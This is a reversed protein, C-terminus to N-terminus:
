APAAAVPEEDVFRENLSKWFADVRPRDAIESVAQTLAMSSIEARSTLWDFTEADPTKLMATLYRSRMGELGAKDGALRYAIAARMVSQRTEPGLNAAEPSLALYASAAAPWDRDRWHAEAVLARADPRDVGELLEITNGYRGLELYAAAELVRRELRVNDPLGALRTSALVRLAAEPQRDMLYIAALDAAVISQGAGRLRNEVQHALLEQAQPLLDFAVLRNALRRIMRDGDPGIPTLDKFEYFLGVAQIPDMTDAKGDLFLARFNDSLMARLDRAGPLKDHLLAAGQAALMSDRFRGQALYIESLAKIVEIELADGRWRFRLSELRETAEKPDILGAAFQVEVLALEARVAVPEYRSKTLATLATVADDTQGKAAAVRALVLRAYLKATDDGSQAARQAQRSATDLQGAQLDALASANLFRAQWHPTYATLVDRGEVFATRALGWDGRAAAIYGQWLKASPDASLQPRQLDAEADGLRGIMASAAVRMGLFQANTELRPNESLALQLAGLAEPFLENAMYFRALSLAAEAAEPKGPEIRSAETELARRRELYPIKTDGAWGAFDVFAPSATIKVASSSAGAGSLSLTMGGELTAVVRGNELTVILGDSRPVLAVGQATRLLSAEVFDRRSSQAAIPAFGAVAVFRDGLSPDDLWMVSAAGPLDIDIRGGEANSVREARVFMEPGKATPGLSVHWAKGKVSVSALASEPAKIRVGSATSSRFPTLSFQGARGISSVDFAANVPFVVWLTDGRRFVAGPAETAFTFTLDLVGARLAGTVAVKGSQPVANSWSRPPTHRPLAASPQDIADALSPEAPKAPDPRQAQEPEAQPATAKSASVPAAKAPVAAEKTPAPTKAELASLAGGKSPDSAIISVLRGEQTMRIAMGAEPTVTVITKGGEDRATLAAVLPPLDVRLPALDLIARRSFSLETAGNVDRASARVDVPWFFSIRSGSTMSTGRRVEVAVPPPIAALARAEAAQREREAAQAEAAIKPSVIDAPDPAAAPIIDFAALERSSSVHGRTGARLAIRLNRGDADLRASSAWDGLGSAVRRPDLSVPEAFTLVAIGSELSLSMRPGPDAQDVYSLVLRMQAPKNETTFTVARPGTQASASLAVFGALLVPLAAMMARMWLLPRATM